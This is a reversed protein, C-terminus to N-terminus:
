PCNSLCTTYAEECAATESDLVYNCYMYQAGYDNACYDPCGPWQNIECNAICADHTNNADALCAQYNSQAQALCATYTKYCTRHCNTNARSPGQSFALLSIFMLLLVFLKSTLKM